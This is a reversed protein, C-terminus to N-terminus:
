QGTILITEVMVLKRCLIQLGTKAAESASAATSVRALKAL